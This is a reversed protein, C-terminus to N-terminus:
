NITGFYIKRYREFREYEEKQKMLLTKIFKCFIIEYEIISFKDDRPFFNMFSEVIEKIIVEDTIFDIEEKIFLKRAIVLLSEKTNDM